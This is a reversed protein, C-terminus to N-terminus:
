PMKTEFTDTGRWPATDPPAEPPINNRLVTSEALPPPPTHTHTGPLHFPENLDLVVGGSYVFSFWRLKANNM